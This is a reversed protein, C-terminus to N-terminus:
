PKDKADELEPAADLAPTDNELGPEYGEDGPKRAAKEARRELKRQQKIEQARKRDNRQMRYNPPFPM